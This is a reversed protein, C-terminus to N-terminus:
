AGDVAGESDEVSVFIGVDGEEFFYVILVVDEYVGGGFIFILVGGDSEVLPVFLRKEAESGFVVLGLGDHDVVIVFVIGIVVASAVHDDQGQVKGFSLFIVDSGHEEDSGLM